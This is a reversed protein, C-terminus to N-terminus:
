KLTLSSKTQTEYDQLM